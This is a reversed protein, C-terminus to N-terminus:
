LYKGQRLKKRHIRRGQQDMLNHNLLLVTTHCRSRELSHYRAQEWQNGWVQKDTRTTGKNNEMLIEMLQMGKNPMVKNTHPQMNLKSDWKDTLQLKNNLTNNNSNLKNGMIRHKDMHTAEQKNNILM